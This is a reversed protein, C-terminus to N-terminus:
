HCSPEASTSTGSSDELTLLTRHSIAVIGAVFVVSALVRRTRRSQGTVKRLGVGAVTLAPMTGLGFAVMVTAGMWPSSAALPLALAAYVLGCPLLATVM